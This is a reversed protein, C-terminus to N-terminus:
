KKMIKEGTKSDYNKDRKTSNKDTYNGELDKVKMASGAKGKQIVEQNSRRLGDTEYNWLRKTKDIIILTIREQRKKTPQAKM